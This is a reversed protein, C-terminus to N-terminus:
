FFIVFFFLFIMYVPPGTIAQPGGTASGQKVNYAYSASEYSSATKVHNSQLMNILELYCKVMTIIEHYKLVKRDMSVIILKSSGFGANDSISLTKSHSM